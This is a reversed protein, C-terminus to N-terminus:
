PSVTAHQRTSQRPGRVSLALMGLAVAVPVALAVRLSGTRTSVLGMLAPFAAAGIGSAALIIGAQRASPRRSMIIAFTAPFVPALAVGLLVALVATLSARHSLALAATLLASALLAIRQLTHDRMRKLLVGAVARGGTLGSLLLVMITQSLRLTSAADRLAYTTLWASLCTELGGYVFLLTAFYLFLTARLSAPATTEGPSQASAEPEPATKRLQLSFIAAVLLFLAAFISLLRALPVSATLSAASLPSLLAGFSWSFNLWSLASARQQTYRAGATINITAITRGVGFGAVVLALCAVALGPALAFAFFGLGAALLGVLLGSRLRASTTSGGLTAGLFQALLLLGAQSDALHWRASLLPLIPGLLMTAPGALVFAAHMLPLTPAPQDATQQAAAPVRPPMAIM